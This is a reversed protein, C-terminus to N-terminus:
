NVNLVSALSAEIEELTTTRLLSFTTLSSLKTVQGSLFNKIAALAASKGSNNPGVIVVVSNENMSIKTGGIFELSLLRADIM